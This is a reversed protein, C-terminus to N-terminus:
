KNRNLYAFAVGWLFALLAALVATSLIQSSFDVAFHREIFQSLWLGAKDFLGIFFPVHPRFIGVLLGATIITVFTALGHSFGHRKPM